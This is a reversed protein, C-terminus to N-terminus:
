SLEMPSVLVSPRRDGHEVVISDARDGSSATM